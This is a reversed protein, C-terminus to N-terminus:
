KDRDTRIKRNCTLNISDPKTKFPEAGPETQITSQIQIPIVRLRSFTELGKYKM